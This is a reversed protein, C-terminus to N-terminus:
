VLANEFIEIHSTPVKSRIEEIDQLKGFKFGYKDVLDLVFDTDTIATGKPNLYQTLFAPIADPKKLSISFSKAWQSTWGSPGKKRSDVVRCPTESGFYTKFEDALYDPLAASITGTHKALWGLSYYFEDAASIPRESKAWSQFDKIAKNKAAQYKAEARKEEDAKKAAEREAERAVREALRKANNETNFQDKYINQIEELVAMIEDTGRLLKSAILVDVALVKSGVAFDITAYLSGGNLPAKVFTLQGEGYVKHCVTFPYALSELDTNIAERLSELNEYDNNRYHVM